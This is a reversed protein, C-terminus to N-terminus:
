RPVTGIDYAVFSSWSEGGGGALAERQAAALARVPDHALGHRYASAILARAGEDDVSRLTALVTGTGNALLAASLSGWMERTRSKGTACGSLVAVRAALGAELVDGATLPGDSLRLSAGAAGSSAHSAIHLVWPTPAEYLAARGADAGLRLPARLADAALRAEDRAASLTGDPDGLVLSGTAYPAPSLAGLLALSPAIAVARETILPKGHRRLAAWPVRLLEGAPVIHLIADGAVVSAPLLREGLREAAAVDSPDADLARMEERVSASDARNEVVVGSASRHISWVRGDAELVVLAEGGVPSAAGEQVLLGSRLAELEAARDLPDGAGPGAGQDTVFDLFSRATLSELVGLLDHTEGREALMRFLAEYPQRRRALLWPQLDSGQLAARLKEM